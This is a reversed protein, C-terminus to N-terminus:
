KWLMLSIRIAHLQANIVICISVRRRLGSSSWTRWFSTKWQAETWKSRANASLLHRHKQIMNMNSKKTSHCVKLRFKQIAYQVTIVSSLKRFHERAWEAIEMVSNHSNTICHWRFAQLSGLCETNIRLTHGSDQFRKILTKLVCSEANRPHEPHESNKEKMIQLWLDKCNLSGRGLKVKSLSQREFISKKYGMM